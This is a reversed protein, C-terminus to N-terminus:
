NVRDAVNTLLACTALALFFAAGGLGPDRVRLHASVAGIFYVILGVAAAAGIMPVALGSLLGVAGGALLVGLPVMYRQPVHVREAVVRVSEAGVFNLVAAYGNALAGLVTVTIYAIHM